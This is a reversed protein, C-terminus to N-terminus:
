SYYTFVLSQLFAGDIYTEAGSELAADDVLAEHVATCINITDIYKEAMVTINITSNSGAIGDKTNVNDFSREYIVCPLGTKEPIIVPFIKVNGQADKGVLNVLTPSAKLLDYIAKGTTIM